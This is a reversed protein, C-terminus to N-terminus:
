AQDKGFTGKQRCFTSVTDICCTGPLRPRCYELHPRVIPTIVQTVKISITRGQIKHSQEIGYARHQYKVRLM